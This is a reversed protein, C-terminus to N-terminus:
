VDTTWPNQLWEKMNQVIEIDKGTVRNVNPTVIVEELNDDDMNNEYDLFSADLNEEQELDKDEIDTLEDSIEEDVMETQEVEKKEPEVKKRKPEPNTDEESESESFHVRVRKKRTRMQHVEHDRGTKRRKKNTEEVTDNETENGEAKRKKQKTKRPLKCMKKHFNLSKVTAFYTKCVKCVRNEIKEQQTPIYSDYPIKTGYKNKLDESVLKEEFVIRAFPDLFKIDKKHIEKELELAEPGTPTQKIPILAPIRRHPFFADINTRPSSCCTRDDCKSYACMYQTEFM